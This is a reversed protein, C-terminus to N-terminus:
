GKSGCCPAPPTAPESSALAKLSCPIRFYTVDMTSPHKPRLVPTLMLVGKIGACSLVDLVADVDTPRCAVLAITVGSDRATAAVASLDRIPLGDVEVGVDEPHESFYAVPRMGFDAAPFTIALGRLIDANGIAFFPHLASLDLFAQIADFLAAPDYGAGSRGKVGVFSLDHRVTEESLGLEDAIERSRILGPEASRRLEGLLCHYRSLRLVTAASATPSESM